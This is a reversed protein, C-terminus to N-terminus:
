HKRPIARVVVNDILSEHPTENLFERNYIAIHHGEFKQPCRVQLLPKETFRDGIEPGYMYVSITEGDDTIRIKHWEDAPIPLKLGADETSGLVTDQGDLRQRIQMFPGWVYFVVLLGDSIEYPHRPSANGTTRLAVTLIDAYLPDLMPSLESWSWDFSLSISERFERRTILFGRNVLKLYRNRESVGMPEKFRRDVEPQPMWLNADFSRDNFDDQLLPPDYLFAWTTWGIGTLLALGLAAITLARRLRTSVFRGFWARQTQAGGALGFGLEHRQGSTGVLDNASPSQDGTAEGAALEDRIRKRVADSLDRPRFSRLEEEFKEIEDTM